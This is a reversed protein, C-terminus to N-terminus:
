FRGKRKGTDFDTGFGASQGPHAQRSSGVHDAAGSRVEVAERHRADDEDPYSAKGPRYGAASRHRNRREFSGRLISAVWVGARPQWNTKWRMARRSLSTCLLGHRLSRNTNEYAARHAFFVSPQPSTLVPGTQPHGPSLLSRGALSARSRKTRWRVGSDSGWNCGLGGGGRWGGGGWGAASLAGTAHAQGQPAPSFFGGGHKAAPTDAV